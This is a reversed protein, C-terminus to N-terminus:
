PLIIWIMDVETFSGMGFMPSELVNRPAMAEHDLDSELSNCGHMVMLLMRGPNVFVERKSDKAVDM